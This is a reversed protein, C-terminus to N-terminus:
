FNTRRGSKEFMFLKERATESKLRDTMNAEQDEM